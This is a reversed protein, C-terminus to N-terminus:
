LREGEEIVNGDADALYWRALTAGPRSDVLGKIAEKVRDHLAAISEETWDDNPEVHIKPDFDFRQTDDGQQLEAFYQVTM